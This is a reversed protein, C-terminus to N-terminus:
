QVLVPKTHTYTHLFSRGCQVQYMSLLFTLSIELSAPPPPGEDPASFSRTSITGVRTERSFFHIVSGVKAGKVRQAPSTRRLYLRHSQTLCNSFQRRAPRRLLVLLYLLGSLSSSLSPPPYTSTSTSLSPLLGSCGPGVDPFPHSCPTKAITLSVTIPGMLAEARYPRPIARSFKFTFVIGM